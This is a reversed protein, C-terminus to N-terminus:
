SAAAAAAEEKEHLVYRLPFDAQTATYPPMASERVEIRLTSPWNPRSTVSWNYFYMSQSRYNEGSINIRIRPPNRTFPSHIKSTESIRITEENLVSVRFIFGVVARHRIWLVADTRGM